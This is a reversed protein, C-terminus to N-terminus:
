DMLSFAVEVHSKGLGWATKLNFIAASIEFFIGWFVTLIPEGFLTDV